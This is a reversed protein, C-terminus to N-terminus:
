TSGLAADLSRLADEHLRGIRPRVQAMVSDGDQVLECVKDVLLNSDLGAISLVWSELGLDRMIGRTKHEYEIAVAPTGSMLSLVVSHFRTGIVVDMMSYCRMLAGLSLDADECRVRDYSMLGLIRHGTVRDDDSPFAVVQPLFVIDCQLREGILDLSTAMAIDYAEQARWRNQSGPFMWDRVTVGVSLPAGSLRDAAKSGLHALDTDLAFAMDAGRMVSDHPMGISQAVGLSIDERVICKSGALARAVLWGNIRHRFPGLSAGLVVIPRSSLKAAVLQLLQVYLSIGGSDQLYGGGCGIILDADLVSDLFERASTARGLLSVRRRCGRSLVLSLIVGMAVRGVRVAKGLSKGKGCDASPAPVVTCSVTSYFETDRDLNYSVITVHADPFTTKIARITGVVIAADGKNRSDYTGIICVSRPSIQRESMGQWGRM